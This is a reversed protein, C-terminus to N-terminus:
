ERNQTWTASSGRGAIEDERVRTAYRVPGTAIQDAVAKREVYRETRSTSKARKLRNIERSAEAATHPYTFTQGSRDALCKLYTLQRRTPQNAVPHEKPTHPAPM